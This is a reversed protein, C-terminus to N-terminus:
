FGRRQAVASRLYIRPMPRFPVSGGSQPLSPPRSFSRWSHISPFSRDPPHGVREIRGPPMGRLQAAAVDSAATPLWHATHRKM